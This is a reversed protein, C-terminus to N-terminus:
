TKKRFGFQNGVLILIVSPHIFTQQQEVLHAAALHDKIAQCISVVPTVDWSPPEAMNDFHLLLMLRFINGFTGEVNNLVYVL